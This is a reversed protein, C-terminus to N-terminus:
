RRAGCCQKFKKGSGCPCPDNRGIRGAPPAARGPPPPAQGPDLYAIHEAAGRQLCGRIIKAAIKSEQEPTLHHFDVSPFDKTVRHLFESRMSEDLVGAPLGAGATMNIGAPSMVRCALVLGPRGTQSFGVDVLFLTEDRLLDRVHVGVGPETSEMAFLSYWSKMKAQLLVMADSDPPPPSNALYREIATRGQRRLDQLCFDMLVAIEDETDLAVTKKDRLLGLRRAGELIDERSLTETLLKNQELGVQRLQKYRALLATREPTMKVESV